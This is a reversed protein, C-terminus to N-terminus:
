DFKKQREHKQDAESTKTTTCSFGHAEDFPKSSKVVRNYDLSVNAGCYLAIALYLAYNNTNNLTRKAFEYGVQENESLFFLNSTIALAFLPLSVFALLRLYCPRSIKRTIDLWFNTRALTKTWIEIFASVINL